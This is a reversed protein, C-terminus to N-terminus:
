IYVKMNFIKTLQKLFSILTDLIIQKLYTLLTRTIFELVEENTDEKIVNGITM